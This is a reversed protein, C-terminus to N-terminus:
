GAETEKLGDAMEQLEPELQELSSSIRAIDTQIDNLAAEIETKRKDLTQKGEEVTKELVIGAGIEVIIKKKDIVKGSIYAEAGIPFLIEENSKEIEDISAETTQIEVLKSAVMDRQKLLGDLKSELIRYALMKEQLQRQDVM